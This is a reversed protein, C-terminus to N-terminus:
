DLFSLDPPTVPPPAPSPPPDNLLWVRRRPMGMQRSSYGLSRLIAGVRNESVKGLHSNRSHLSAILESLTFGSKQGRTVGDFGADQDLWAEVLERLVDQAQYKEHEVPALRQADQWCVGKAKYLDIAELWLQDRDRAIADRDVKNVHVPLWRRNGTNDTLIDASNTTGIFLCRRAFRETLEKFKPVWEEHTRTILAKQAEVERSRLGSLEAMEVILKGRLKRSLDADREDLSISGLMDKGPVMAAIGTSKGVGQPGEFIPVMDLQCGPDIIRAALGSWIYRSVAVAYESDEAGFYTHLFNDVRCVGDWKGLTALWEQATDFEHLKAHYFVAERLNETTIPKFGASELRLKLAFYDNNGFPRWQGECGVPALMAKDNFSDFRILMGIFEPCALAAALNPANAVIKGDKGSRCGALPDHRAMQLASRLTVPRVNAKGFSAWRKQCDGKQYKQGKASWNEWLALYEASGGGEHNLGMGIRLWPDHPMDPDLKALLDIIEEKTLGTKQSFYLFADEPSVAALGSKNSGGDAPSTAMNLLWSPAESIEWGSEEAWEYKNGSSHISPPAVVYGGDGRVDVKPAIKSTSNRIQMGEPYKFWFHLGGGGTRVTRTRPLAGHQSELALLSEQGEPGDIDLVFFGQAEGTPIGINADPWKAWWERLQAEEKSAAKYGNATLPKKDRPIVPFVALGEAAFDLAAKEFIGLM